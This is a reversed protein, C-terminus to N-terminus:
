HPNATSGSANGNGSCAARGIGACRLRPHKGQRKCAGDTYLVIRHHDDMKEGAQAGAPEYPTPQFIADAVSREFVRLQPDEVALGMLATCPAMDKAKRLAESRYPDWKPCVHFIHEVTECPAGCFLCEDEVQWRARKARDRSVVSGVQIRQMMRREPGELRKLLANSVERDLGVEAGAM